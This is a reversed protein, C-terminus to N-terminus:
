LAHARRSERVLTTNPQAFAGIRKRLQSHLLGVAPSRIRIDDLVLSSRPARVGEVNPYLQADLHAVTAM